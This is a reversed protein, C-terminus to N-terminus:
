EIFFGMHVLQGYAFYLWHRKIFSILLSNNGNKIGKEHRACSNQWESNQSRRNVYMSFLMSSANNTKCENPMALRRGCTFSVKFRIRHGLIYLSMVLVYAFTFPMPITQGQTLIQRVKILPGICISEECRVVVRTSKLHM